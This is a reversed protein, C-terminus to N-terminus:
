YVCEPIQGKERSLCSFIHLLIKNDGKGFRIRFLKILKYRGIGQEYKYRNRLCLSWSCDLVAKNEKIM